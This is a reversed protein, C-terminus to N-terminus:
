GEPTIGYRTMLFTQNAQRNADSHADPFTALRGVRATGSLSDFMSITAFNNWTDRPTFGASAVAGNRYVVLNAETTFKLVILTTNAATGGLPVDVVASNSSYTWNGASAGKIKAVSAAALRVATVESVGDFPAKGVFYVTGTTGTTWGALHQYGVDNNNYFYAPRGGVGTTDMTAFATGTRTMDRANGSFDHMTTINAGNAYATEQSADYDALINTTYPLAVGGGFSRFRGFRMSPSPM